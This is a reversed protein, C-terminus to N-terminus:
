GHNQKRNVARLSNLVESKKYYVRRNMRYFPIFGKKAWDNLTVLSVQFLQAAQKRSILDEQAPVPTPISQQQPTSGLAEKVSELIMTRLEALDTVVLQNM